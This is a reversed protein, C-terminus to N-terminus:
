RIQGAYYIVFRQTQENVLIGWEQSGTGMPSFRLITYDYISDSIVEEFPLGIPFDYNGLDEGIYDEVDAGYASAFGYKYESARRLVEKYDMNMHNAQLYEMEKQEEESYTNKVNGNQEWGPYNVAAEYCSEQRINEMFVDYQTEDTITFAYISHAYLINDTLYYKVDEAGDPLGYPWGRGGLENFQEISEFNTRGNPMSHKVYCCLLVGIIAFVIYKKWQKKM